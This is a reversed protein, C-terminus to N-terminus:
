ATEPRKASGETAITPPGSAPRFVLIAIDHSQGGCRIEALVMPGLSRGGIAVEIPGQGIPPLRGDALLQLAAPMMAHVKAAGGEALVGRHRNAPFSLLTNDGQPIRVDDLFTGGIAIRQELPPQVEARVGDPLGTTSVLRLEGAADM